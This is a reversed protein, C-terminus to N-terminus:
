GPESRTWPSVGLTGTTGLDIVGDPRVTRAREGGHGHEALVLRAAAREGRKLTLAEPPDDFGDLRAISM